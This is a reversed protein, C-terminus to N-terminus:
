YIEDIMIGLEDLHEQSKFNDALINIIIESDIPQMQMSTKITLSFFVLLPTILSLQTDNASSDYNDRGSQMERRVKEILSFMNNWKVPKKLFTRLLRLAEQQVESTTLNEIEEKEEEIDLHYEEQLYYRNKNKM